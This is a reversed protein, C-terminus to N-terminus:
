RLGWVDFVKFQLSDRVDSLYWQQINTSRESLLLMTKASSEVLLPGSLVLMNQTLITAQYRNEELVTVRGM